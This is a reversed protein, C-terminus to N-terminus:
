EAYRGNEEEQRRCCGDCGHTGLAFANKKGVYRRVWKLSDPDSHGVGHPCIREMIGAKDLRVVFPWERLWNKKSPRHVACHKETACHREPHYCIGLPTQYYGIV